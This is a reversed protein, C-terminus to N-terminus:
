DINGGFGQSFEEESRKSAFDDTWGAPGKAESAWPKPYGAAELPVPQFSGDNRRPVFIVHQPALGVRAQTTKKKADKAAQVSTRIKDGIRVENEERLRLAEKRRAERIERNAQEILNSQVMVEREIFAELTAREEDIRAKNRAVAERHQVKNADRIAQVSEDNALVGQIVKERTELYDNYELLSKKQMSFPKHNTHIKYVVLFLLPKSEQRLFDSPSLNWESCIIGRVKTQRELRLVSPPKLSLASAVIRTSCIKCPKPLELKECSGCVRHYCPAQKNEIDMVNAANAHSLTM